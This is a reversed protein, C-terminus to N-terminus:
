DFLNLINNLLKQEKDNVANMVLKDNNYKGIYITKENNKNVKGNSFVILNNHESEITFLIDYKTKRNNKNKVILKSQSM